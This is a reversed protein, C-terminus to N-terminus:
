ALDRPHIVRVLKGAGRAIEGHLEIRVLTGASFEHESGTLYAAIRGVLPQHSVLVVHGIAAGPAAVGALSEEPDRDPTLAEVIDIAARAGTGARLLEATERARRYPSAFMRDPSFREARLHTALRAITDRGAPSLAREADHGGDPARLADGHRLLDLLLPM